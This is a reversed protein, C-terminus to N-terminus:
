VKHINFRVGPFIDKLMNVANVNEKADDYFEIYNLNKMKIRRAIEIAKAYPNSTNLPLIEINEHIGIMSLFQQVPDSNGRATLILVNDKGYRKIMRKLKDTMPKIESPEVLKKFDSFDPIDEDRPVYSPFDESRLVFTQDGRTIIVKSNTKVLTDDFDFIFLPVFPKRSIELIRKLIKKEIKKEM